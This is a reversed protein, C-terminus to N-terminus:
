GSQSWQVYGEITVGQSRFYSEASSYLSGTVISPIVVAKATAYESWKVGAITDYHNSTEEGTTYLQPSLYNIDANPFFSRMLSAADPIGYPASYSVTVLVYYGKARASRFCQKFADSLGSDGEEIDFVIGDYGAFAGSEISNKIKMLVNYNFRGDSDGGGLSIYKRGPLKSKLAASDQIAKTPDSYGNFAVGLFFFFAM